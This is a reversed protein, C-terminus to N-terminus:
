VVSYAQFPESKIGLTKTLATNFPMRGNKFQNLFIFHITSKKQVFSNRILLPFAFINTRSYKYLAMLVLFHDKNRCIVGWLM